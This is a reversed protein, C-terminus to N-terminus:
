SDLLTVEYNVFGFEDSRAALYKGDSPYINIDFEKQGVTFYLKDDRFQYPETIAESFGHLFSVDEEKLDVGKIITRTGDPNLTIITEEGTLTNTVKVTKGVFLSRMESVSLPRGLDTVKLATIEQSPTYWIPSTYAREQITASVFGLPAVGMKKADYTSWRPTPIELVRAYYFANLNPDFDPDTWVGMLETDGITNTYTAKSIDVTMGVPPANGEGDVQRGDALAVNYIKEYTQGQKSWGKVIQIRDLNGSNPDKMAWVVFSPATSNNPIEPLDTGMPVGNAYAIDVWNRQKVLDPNFNWGGFMRARIHPGSTAFTEKRVLADFISERTNEEAWVGALGGTGFIAGPLPSKDPTSAFRKEPTGDEIGIKGFYNDEEYAGGTNHTDSSGILGFKFPNDNYQEQFGLGNRYAERFYSGNAKGKKGITALLSDVVEFNAFEDDPSLTPHTESQGKIQVGEVLLENRSRAAIYAQDIPNGFSDKLKFMEGNSLNPNHPIAILEAGNQRQNDMWKWLNEPYYSEFTSYPLQPLNQDTKFIVNRHLNANNPTSSWEYGVFTTFKGPEYHKNATAIMEQWISQEIEPKDLSEVKNFKGQGESVGKLATGTLDLYVELIGEEDGTRIPEAYPHDALASNPDGLKPIIGLYEAHDTVAEFDLPTKNQIMYGSAHPIAEGKAFKYADDPTTRVNYIYSDFSWGTHVHLDGFYANRQPTAQAIEAIETPNEAQASFWILVPTLIGLLVIAIFKFIQKTLM